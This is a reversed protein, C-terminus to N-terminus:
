ARGHRLLRGPLPGDADVADRGHRRIPVGNVIVAEVGSARSILSIM